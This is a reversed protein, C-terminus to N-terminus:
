QAHRDKTAQVGRNCSHLFERPLVQGAGSLFDEEHQPAQERPVYDISGSLVREELSFLLPVKGTCGRHVFRRGQQSEEQWQYLDDPM